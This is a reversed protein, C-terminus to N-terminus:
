LLETARFFLTRRLSALMGLSLGRARAGLIVRRQESLIRLLDALAFGPAPAGDAYVRTLESPAGALQASAVNM